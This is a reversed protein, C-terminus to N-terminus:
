QLSTKSVQLQHSGDEALWVTQMKSSDRPNLCDTYCENQAASLRCSIPLPPQWKWCTGDWVVLAHGQLGSAYGTAGVRDSESPLFSVGRSHRREKRNGRRWQWVLRCPRILLVWRKWWKRTAYIANYNQLPFTMKLYMVDHITGTLLSVSVDNTTEPIPVSWKLPHCTMSQTETIFMDSTSICEWCYELWQGICVMSKVVIQLMSETNISSYKMSPLPELVHRFPRSRWSGWERHHHWSPKPSPNPPALLASLCPIAHNYSGNKEHLLPDCHRRLFSQAYTTLRHLTHGLYVFFILM